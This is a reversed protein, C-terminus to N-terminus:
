PIFNMYEYQTTNISVKVWLMALLSGDQVIHLLWRIDRVM